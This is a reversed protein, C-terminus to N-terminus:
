LKKAAPTCHLSLLKGRHRSLHDLGARLYVRNHGAADSAPSSACVFALSSYFFFFAFCFLFGPTCCDTSRVFAALPSLLSLSVPIHLWPLWRPPFWVSIHPEAGAIHSSDRSLLLKWSLRKHIQPTACTNSLSAQRRHLLDLNQWREEKIGGRGLFRGVWMCSLDPLAGAAHM